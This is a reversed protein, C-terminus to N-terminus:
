KGGLLSGALMLKFRRKTAPWDIHPYKKKAEVSLSFTQGYEPSQHTVVDSGSFLEELAAHDQETLEGDHIDALSLALHRSVPQPLAGLVARARDVTTLQEFPVLDSKM